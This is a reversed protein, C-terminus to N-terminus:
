VPAAPTVFPDALPEALPEAACLLCCVCQPMTDMTTAAEEVSHGLVDKLIVASREAITLALFRGGTSQIMVPCPSRAETRASPLSM